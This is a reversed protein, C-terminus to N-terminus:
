LYFAGRAFRISGLLKDHGRATVRGVWDSQVRPLTGWTEGKLGPIGRPFAFGIRAKRGTCM